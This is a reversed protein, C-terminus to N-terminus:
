FWYDRFRKVVHGHQEVNARLAQLCSLTIEDRFDDYEMELSGKSMQFFAREANEVSVEAGATGDAGEPCMFKVFQSRSIVGSGDDDLTKLVIEISDEIEGVERDLNALDSHLAAVRSQAMRDIAKLVNAYRARVEKADILQSDGDNGLEAVCAENLAKAPIGKTAEEHQALIHVWEAVPRVSSEDALASPLGKVLVGDESMRSEISSRTQILHEVEEELSKVRLLMPPLTTYEGSM